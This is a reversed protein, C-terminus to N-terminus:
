TKSMTAWDHAWRQRLASQTAADAFIWDLAGLSLAYLQDRRLGFERAAIAYEASLSTGFVGKDDTCLALPHQAALLERLHHEGYSAVTRCLVNSTM